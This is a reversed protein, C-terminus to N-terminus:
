SADMVTGAGLLLRDGYTKRLTQIVSIAEPVTMTVEIVTVGGAYLAEVLAHAEASSKARLVPILGLSELREQIEKSM